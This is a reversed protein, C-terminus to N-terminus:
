RPKAGTVLPVAFRPGNTLRRKLLASGAKDIAAQKEATTAAASTHRAMVAPTAAAAARKAAYDLDRAFGPDTGRVADAAKALYGAADALACRAEDVEYTLTDRIEGDTM